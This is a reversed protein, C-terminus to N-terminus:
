VTDHYAKNAQAFSYSNIDKMSNISFANPGNKGDPTCIRQWNSKMHPSLHAIKAHSADRTQQVRPFIYLFQLM